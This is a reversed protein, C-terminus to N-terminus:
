SRQQDTQWPFYVHFGKKQELTPKELTKWLLRSMLSGTFVYKMQAHEPFIEGLREKPFLPDASPDRQM